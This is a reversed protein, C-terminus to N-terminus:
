CMHIKNTEYVKHYLFYLEIILDLALNLQLTRCLIIIIIISSRKCSLMTIILNHLYVITEFVIITYCVIMFNM